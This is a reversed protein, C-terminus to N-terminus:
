GIPPESLPQHRPLPDAEDESEEVDVEDDLVLRRCPPCCRQCQM